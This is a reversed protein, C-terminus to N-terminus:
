EMNRPSLLEVRALVFEIPYGQSTTQERAFLMTSTLERGPYIWYRFGNRALQALVRHQEFIDYRAALEVAERTRHGPSAWGHKRALAALWRADECVATRYGPDPCCWATRVLKEAWPRSPLAALWSARAWHRSAELTAAHRKLYDAAQQAAVDKGNVHAHAEDHVLVLNGRPKDWCVARVLAAQQARGCQGAQFAGATSCM